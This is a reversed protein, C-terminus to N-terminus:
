RGGVLVNLIRIHPSGMSVPLPYQLRQGYSRGCSGGRSFTLDSGIMDINALTEFVNGTLVVDRLMNEIKGNRIIFGKEASFTFMDMSTNGSGSGCAYIGHEIGSLMDEFTAEGKDIFTNTM